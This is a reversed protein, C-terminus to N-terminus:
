KKKFKKEYLESSSICEIGMNKMDLINSAAVEETKASCCDTVVTVDYDFSMADAATGRICNPYQTGSIVVREIQLRRLISDLNTGFFASNRTKKVILEGDIPKLDEMILCGETEAVCYGKGGNQFLHRRPKDVNIGKEDHERIVHIVTWGSKRAFDLLKRIAPVTPLAGDVCLTRGPLVFDKQMDIILLATKM